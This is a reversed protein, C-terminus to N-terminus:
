LKFSYPYVLVMLILRINYADTGVAQHGLWLVCFLVVVLGQEIWLVCCVVSLLGIYQGCFVVCWQYCVWTSVVSCLVGSIVYGHELWLISWMASSDSGHELQLQVCCVVLVLRMNQDGSIVSGYKLLLGESMVLLM